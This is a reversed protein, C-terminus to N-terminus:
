PVLFLVTLSRSVEDRYQSLCIRQIRSLYLVPRPARVRTETGPSRGM